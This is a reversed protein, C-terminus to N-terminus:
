KGLRERELRLAEQQFKEHEPTWVGLDKFFKVTGSHYPVITLLGELTYAREWTWSKLGKEMVSYMDYGEKLAKAFAYVVEDSVKPTSWIGEEYGFANIIEGEKLGPAGEVVIPNGAPQVARLRKWGDADEPPLDFWFIGHRSAALEVFSKGYPAGGVGDITGEILGKYGVPISPVDVVKVDDLTLGGFALAAEQNRSWAVSAPSQPVRKGKLESIRKIGSDGRTVMAFIFPYGNWVRRAQVPGIEKFEGTVARYMTVGTVHGFEADGFHLPAIIAVDTDRPEIRVKMPSFKDVTAALAVGRAGMGIRAPLATMTVIEPLKPPPPTPAPTPTPAPAPPPPAPKACSSVVATIALLAVLLCILVKKM